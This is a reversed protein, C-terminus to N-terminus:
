TRRRTSRTASSQSGKQSPTPVEGIQQNGKLWQTLKLQLSERLESSRTECEWVVLVRWGLSNLADLQRRDRERNKALKEHWFESNSSPITSFKCGEHMHWFCGHVLIVARYRPLVIDPTGPLDKRHLRYRFGSAHLMGRVVLEPKTHRGRIGAMMQSRKTSDVIDTVRRSGLCRINIQVPHDVYWRKKTRHLNVLIHFHAKTSAGLQKDSSQRTGHKMANCSHKNSNRFPSMLRPTALLLFQM